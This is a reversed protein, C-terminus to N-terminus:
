EMPKIMSEIFDIEKKDLGYKKYLQKDIEAISKSWDIDSKSTFDQMPVDLYTTKSTHQSIKKQSILARFFKTKMYRVANEALTQTEFLGVLLFTETAIENPKGLIIDPFAEGIAGNGYAYPVFLKYGNIFDKGNELPYTSHVYREARKLNLLGYIKIGNKIKDTSVDPMNYKKPDKFFDTRLGFPNRTSVLESFSGNGHQSVKNSISLLEKYRVFVGKNALPRVDSSKEGNQGHVTVNCDGSHDIDWLFYCIGGKIDVNPFVSNANAYDHLMSIRDDHLMDKRFDDLGKGGAFWRSPIIMSLFEPNLLKASGVFYQYIPSASAGFGGDDVQYPPNGVIANFKMNAEKSKSNYTSGNKAKEVFKNGKGDKIMTILNDFAHANIKVDRYGCLTRQTISKAMQTKCIIYVNNQVVSDWIEIAKAFLEDDESLKTIDVNNEACRKRWITYTVYLPYLGSKSNIELIKTDKPGFVEETVDPIDMYRVDETDPIPNKYEPDYFNYGGLCDGMHMNVVRWPTLVTEKDPNKFTSFLATMFRTRTTPEMRDARKIRQRIEKGAGIFADRDFYPIFQKFVEKDIGRPMFEDWSIPDVMDVFQELDIDQNVDIDAGYILMPIRIAVGKLAKLAKERKSKAEKREELAAREDDSLPTQPPQQDSQKAGDPNMGNNAMIIQKEKDTSSNKSTSSGVLKQLADFKDVASKDLQLLMDRNFLNPDEFGHTVIRDIYARKLQELMGNVNYPTMHSGTVSIIPCFQLLDEMIARDTARTKGARTSVKVSEAVCKLTRDPAFDFVFCNEKIRGNINAASQVRFITQMYTSAATSYAGALMFVATWEPVTVGTTLRGCSITISYTDQPHDTIAKRVLDLADKFNTEEDGDGAVNAINFQGFVPHEKLLKSLAKAEKVGPVMWLSHRFNDRYEQKSFPYNSDAKDNVLLNLFGRIDDEHVFDGNPKTKFFESFNFYKDETYSGYKGGDIQSMDYTFINMKPLSAYPNPEGLHKKHWDAKARQEMIYDWTYVEDEDINDLLNFPTGSLQLLYTRDKVLLEAINKGLETQTGEHAEDIIVMDWDTNFIANNKDFKGGAAEAGRLDQISAFYLYKCRDHKADREVDEFNEGVTRSAFKYDPKDCFLKKFDDYWGDKVVPRHTIIITRKLGLEGVLSMATLTKGFRMKAYWLMRNHGSKFRKITKKVAEKQEDRLNIPTCSSSIENPDLSKRDEKVAQIANKVVDLGVMYWEKSGDVEEFQKKKINSRNLVKHVDHDSFAKGVNTKALETYLLDYRLGATQTYQKIRKNAAANLEQCNPTLVDPNCDINITAEGIKLAGDHDAYPMSFVYILKYGSFASEFNSM